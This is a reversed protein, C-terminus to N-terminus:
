ALDDPLRVNLAKAYHRLFQMGSWRSKARDEDTLDEEDTIWRAGELDKWTWTWGAFGRADVYGAARAIATRESPDAGRNERVNIARLRGFFLFGCWDVQQPAKGHPHPTVPPTDSEPDFVSGPMFPNPAYTLEDARPVRVTGPLLEELQDALSRYSAVIARLAEANNSM